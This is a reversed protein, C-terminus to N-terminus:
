ILGAILDLSAQTSADTSGVRDRLLELVERLLFASLRRSQVPEEGLLLM